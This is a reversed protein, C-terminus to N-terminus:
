VYTFAHNSAFLSSIVINYGICKSAEYASAVKKMINEIWKEELFALGVQRDIDAEM